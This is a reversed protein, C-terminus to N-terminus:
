WFINKDNHDIKNETVDAFRMNKARTKQKCNRCVWFSPIFWLLPTLLLMFLGVVILSLIISSFMWILIWIWKSIEHVRQSHCNPCHPVNKRTYTELLIKGGCPVFFSPPHLKGQNTM